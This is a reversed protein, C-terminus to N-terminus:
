LGGNILLLRSTAIPPTIRDPKAMIRDFAQKHHRDSIWKHYTQSHVAMSHGMQKAALELPLGFEMSRIAWAHRLDYPTFPIKYRRFQKHAQDGTNRTRPLKPNNLDFLDVWEPYIPYTKRDSSASKDGRVILVPMEDFELLVLEEPRIGYTAMIGFSWAWSTGKIKFFSDQIVTDSPIDRPQVTTPSYGGKYPNLNIEIGAFKFFASIAICARSRKRTNPIIQKVSAIADDPNLNELIKLFDFYDKHWTTESIGQSFKHSKFKELWQNLDLNTEDQKLYPHWDFLGQDLLATIKRAESEAFSIGANTSNCGLFIRQRHWDQRNANPKPPLTARLLLRDGRQEISCRSKDAKLRSNAQALRDMYEAKYNFSKFRRLPATKQM